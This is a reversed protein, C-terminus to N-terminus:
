VRQVELSLWHITTRSKEATLLSIDFLILWKIYYNHCLSVVKGNLVVMNGEKTDLQEESLATLRTKHQGSLLQHLKM